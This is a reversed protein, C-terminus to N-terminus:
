SPNGEDDLGVLAEALAIATNELRRWEDFDFIRIRNKSAPTYVGAPASRLVGSFIRMAADRDTPPTVYLDDTGAISITQVVVYQPTKM